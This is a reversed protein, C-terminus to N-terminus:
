SVTYRSLYSIAQTLIQRSEKSYGIISNCSFCLLGRVNGTTHNHDVHLSKNTQRGCIACKGDQQRFLINYHETSIGYTSQLHYERAHDKHRHYSERGIKRCKDLNQERYVKRKAAINNRVKNDHYYKLHCVKCDARRGFYGKKSPSFESIEKVQHCKSCEKTDM